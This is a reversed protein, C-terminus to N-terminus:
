PKLPKQELLYETFSYLYESTKGSKLTSTEKTAFIDLSDLFIWQNEIQESKEWQLSLLVVKLSKEDKWTSALVLLRPPPPALPSPFPPRPPLSM